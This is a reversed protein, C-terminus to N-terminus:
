QASHDFMGVKTEDTELINNWSNQPKKLHLKSFQLWTRVRSVRKIGTSALLSTSPKECPEVSDHSGFLGLLDYSCLVKECSQLHCFYPLM